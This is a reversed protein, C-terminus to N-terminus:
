PSDSGDANNGGAPVTRNRFDIWTDALGLTVLTGIAIPAALFSMVVVLIRGPLPWKRAGHAAVALGRAGYMGVWVVMANTVVRAFIDGAPVLALGLTFIAGWILHDNFRFAAFPGPAPGIPRVALRSYWSWALSLGLLAQLAAIAPFARAVTPVAALASQVQDAPAGELLLELSRKLDAGVLSDIASLELGVARGWVIVGVLGAGVAIAARGFGSLRPAAHVLVVFAGTMILGLAGILRAPASAGDLDAVIKAAAAGALVLWLWERITAPRSFLLLIALPALLFLPPALFLFAVVALAVGVASRRGSDQPPAAASTM